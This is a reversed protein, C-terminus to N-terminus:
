RAGNWIMYLGPPLIGTHGSELISDPLLGLGQLIWLLRQGAFGSAEEEEDPLNWMYDFLIRRKKEPYVVRPEDDISAM